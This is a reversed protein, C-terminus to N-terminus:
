SSKASYAGLKKKPSMKEKKWRNPELTLVQKTLRDEEKLQVHSELTILENRMNKELTDM